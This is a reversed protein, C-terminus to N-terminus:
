DVVLEPRGGGRRAHSRQRLHDAPAHSRRAHDPHPQEHRVPVRHNLRFVDDPDYGARVEGLRRYDAPTYASATRATDSLFNLFSGGTAHQHLTDALAPDAADAIVSFPVGRHGVPGAEAGPRAMAGDWHRIEITSIGLGEDSAAEVLFDLVPDSLRELLDLHRPATGGMAVDAYPAARFGDLLAPGAAARLPEILREAEAPDGAHMLRIAVARQQSDPVRTLLIATSIEDPAHEVWDRYVALTEAAREVPFYSTGAYVREVPHLRFELETVLGFGGGGGRLAWFLDANRDAGATVRRGTATVLEARVVNDAAFGHARSLWGVGGGLTFGIVGVSPSSGSLPALGFPAAAAIVQGWTAGPGVRATRRGPDVHVSRMGSTNLLLGGDYSAHLGHGTAQVAIPLDGERAAIVAAQVDASSTPRAVIAPRPDLAPNLPRRLEEYGPEGPLHVAGDFTHRLRRLTSSDAM